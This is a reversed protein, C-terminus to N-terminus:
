GGLTFGWALRLTYPGNMPNTGTFSNISPDRLIWGAGIWESGSSEPIAFDTFGTVAQGLSGEGSLAVIAASVDYADMGDLAILEEYTLSTGDDFELLTYGSADWDDAAILGLELFDGFGGNAPTMFMAMGFDAQEAALFSSDCEDPNTSPDSVDVVSSSDVQIYATCLECDAAQGPGYYVGAELEIRQICLPVSNSADQYYVTYFEGTLDGGTIEAQIGDFAFGMVSDDDDDDDGVPTTDDDDDGIPTTDDDDDGQDIPTTDDDDDDDDGTADDDDGSSGGRGGRTSCGAVLLAMAALLLLPSRTRIPSM